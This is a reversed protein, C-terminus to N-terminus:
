SGESSLSESETLAVSLAGSICEEMPKGANWMEIMHDQVAVIAKPHIGERQARVVFQMVLVSAAEEATMSRAIIKTTVTLTPPKGERRVSARIDEHYLKSGIAIAEAESKAECQYVTPQHRNLGHVELAWLTTEPEPTQPPEQTKKEARLGLSRKM